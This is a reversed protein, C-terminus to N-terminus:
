ETLLGKMSPVRKGEDWVKIMYSEFIKRISLCPIGDGSLCRYFLLSAEADRKNM